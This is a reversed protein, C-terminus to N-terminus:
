AGVVRHPALHEVGREGQRTQTAVGGRMVAPVSARRRVPSQARDVDGPAGRDAAVVGARVHQVVRQALHEALVDLLGARQHRGVPQAEVEAVVVRDGVGLDGLDFPDGVLSVSPWRAPAPRRSWWPRLSRREPRDGEEAVLVAVDDPHELDAVRDLQAAARVHAGGAVDAQDLDDALRRDAGVQAADLRDGAVVGHAQQLAVLLEDGVRRPQDPRRGVIQEFPTRRRSSSIM